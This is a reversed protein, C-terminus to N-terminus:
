ISWIEKRLRRLLFLMVVRFSDVRTTDRRDPSLLRKWDAVLQSSLSNIFRLAWRSSTRLFINRSFGCYIGSRRYQIFLRNPYYKSWPGAERCSTGPWCFHHEAVGRGIGHRIWSFPLTRRNTNVVYSRSLLSIFVKLYLMGKTNGRPDGWRHRYRDM